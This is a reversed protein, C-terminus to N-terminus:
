RSPTSPSGHEKPSLPSILWEDQHMYDWDSELKMAYSGDAVETNKDAAAHIWQKPNQSDHRITWNAVTAANEFDESLVTEGSVPASWALEVNGGAMTAAYGVSKSYYTAMFVPALALM